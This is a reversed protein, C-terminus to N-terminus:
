PPASTTSSTAPPGSVKRRGQIVLVLHQGQGLHITFVQGELGAPHVAAVTGLRQIQDRLPFQIGGGKDGM